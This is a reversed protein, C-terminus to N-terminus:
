QRPAVQSSASEAATPDLSRLYAYLDALDQPMMEKLLGTPMLSSNLSRQVEIEDAEIRFTQNTANRLIVGDVSEYIILGTYVKGADTQIMTTQYRPSVDRSPLAIATWLDDRSFRRSVGALDPGLARRGGHCQACSRKEFLEHGRTPDGHDWDAEALMDRLEALEAESGGLEAAMAEPYERELWETWLAVLREPSQEGGDTSIGIQQGNNRNLLDSTKQRLEIEGAISGLRRLTRLLAMQEAADRSPPLQALADLCAQLVELQPAELGTVFKDRDAEAAHESLVMLVASRVGFHDFQNRVMERHEASDSEGLVFVVDPTWTYEPNERIQKVFAEIAASLQEKPLESLYIVHGSRGFQPQQAIAVPLNIDLKVLERYLEGIRDDWHLDLNLGRATIKEELGVLARAIQERESRTREVPVRAAVILQHIDSVPHSDDTIKALVRDLFGSNYPTLMALVRSVEENLTDDATPYLVALRTRIPDLAREEDKLNL